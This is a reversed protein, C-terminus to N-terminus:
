GGPGGVHRCYSSNILLNYAPGGQAPPDEADWVYLTYTNPPVNSFTIAWQLNNNMPVNQVLISDGNTPSLEGTM